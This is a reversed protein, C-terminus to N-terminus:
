SIGLKIQANLGNTVEDTSLLLRHRNKSRRAIFDSNFDHPVVGFPKYDPHTAFVSKALQDEFYVQSTLVVKNNYHVRLHIHAVRSVYWGPFVTQFEVLGNSDTFQGGRLFTESNSLYTLSSTDITDYKRRNRSEKFGSYSGRNDAHWIEVIANEVPQCTKSDVIQMKLTLDLGKRDERINSREPADLHYPGKIQSPAPNCLQSDIRNDAISFDTVEKEKSLSFFANAQKTPLLATSGVLAGYTIISRRKLNM